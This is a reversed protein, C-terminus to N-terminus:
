LSWESSLSEPDADDYPMDTELSLEAFHDQM